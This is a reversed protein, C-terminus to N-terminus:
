LSGIRETGRGAVIKYQWRRDRGFGARDVELAALKGHTHVGIHGDGHVSFGYARSLQLRIIQVAAHKEAIKGKVYMLGSLTKCKAHFVLVALQPFLKGPQAPKRDIRGPAHGRM